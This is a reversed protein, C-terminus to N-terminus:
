NSGREVREVHEVHEEQEWGLAYLELFVGTRSLMEFGVSTASMSLHPGVGASDLGRVLGFGVLDGLISKKPTTIASRSTRTPVSKCARTPTFSPLWFEPNKTM